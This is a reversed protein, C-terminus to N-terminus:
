RWQQCSCQELTQRAGRALARAHTYSGGARQNYQRPQPLQTRAPCQSRHPPQSSQARDCVELSVSDALLASIAPRNDDWRSGIPPRNNLIDGGLLINPRCWISLPLGLMVVTGVYGSQSSSPIAVKSM